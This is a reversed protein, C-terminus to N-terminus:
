IGWDRIFTPLNPLLDVMAHLAMLLWLNRTRSWIIGFFFGAVSMLVICYGIALLPSPSAGLGDLQGSGRLFYGPAHVLGFIVGSILIAGTESRLLAALRAQLLARFFFEEVLGVALILWLYLLPTAVLLQTTSFEGSLLPKAGSGLFLQLTLILLSMVVFLLVNQRSFLAAINMGLGANKLNYGYLYKYIGFPVVVFLLLKKSVSLVERWRPDATYKGLLM